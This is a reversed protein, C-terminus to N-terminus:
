CFRNKACKTFIQYPIFRIDQSSNMSNQQNKTYFSITHDEKPFNINVTRSFDLWAWKPGKKTWIQGKQALILM